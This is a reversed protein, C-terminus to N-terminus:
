DPSGVNPDDNAKGDNSAIKRARSADSLAKIAQSRIELKWQSQRLLKRTRSMRKKPVAM